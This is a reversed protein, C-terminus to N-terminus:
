DLSLSRMRFVISGEGDRMYTLIFFSSVIVERRGVGRLLGSSAAKATEEGSVIATQKGSQVENDAM